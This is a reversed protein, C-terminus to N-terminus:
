LPRNTGHNPHFGMEYEAMKRAIVADNFDKFYGLHNNKGKNKIQARWRNTVPFWMVGAVGSTNNNHLRRNRCNEQPTVSRLNIRRNDTGDGNIHDTYEPPYGFLMM